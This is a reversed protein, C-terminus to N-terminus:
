PFPPRWAATVGHREPQDPGDERDLRFRLRSHRLDHRTTAVRPPANGLRHATWARGVVLSVGGQLRMRISIGSTMSNPLIHRPRSVHPSAAWVGSDRTLRGLIAERRGTRHGSRGRRTRAVRTQRRTPEHRSLERPPITRSENPRDCEGRARECGQVTCPPGTCDAPLSRHARPPLAFHLRRRPCSPGNRTVITHPPNPVIIPVTVADCKGSSRKSPGM